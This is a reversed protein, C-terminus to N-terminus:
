GSWRAADGAGAKCCQRPKSTWFEFWFTIVACNKHIHVNGSQIHLCIEADGWVPDTNVRCIPGIICSKLLFLAPSEIHVVPLVATLFCLPCLSLFCPAHTSHVSCMRAEGHSDWALLDHHLVMHGQFTCPASTCGKSHGCWPSSHYLLQQQGSSLKRSVQGDPM